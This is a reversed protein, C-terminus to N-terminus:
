KGTDTVLFRGLFRLLFSLQFVVSRFRQEGKRRDASLGGSRLNEQRISQRAPAEVPFSPATRLGSSPSLGDNNAHIFREPGAM